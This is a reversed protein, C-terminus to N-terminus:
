ASYVNNYPTKKRIKRILRILGFMISSLVLLEIALILAFLFWTGGEDGFAIALAPILVPIFVSEVLWTLGLENSFTISLIGLLIYILSIGFSILWDKKINNNAKMFDRVVIV